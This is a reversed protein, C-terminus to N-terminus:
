ADVEMADKTTTTVNTESQGQDAVLEDFLKNAAALEAEQLSRTATNSLQLKNMREARLTRTAEATKVGEEGGAAEASSLVWSDATGGEYLPQYSNVAIRLNLKEVAAISNLRREFPGDDEGSEGSPAPTQQTSKPDAGAKRLNRPLLTRSLQSHDVGQTPAM